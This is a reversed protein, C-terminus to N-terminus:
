CIGKITSTTDLPDSTKRSTKDSHEEQNLLPDFVVHNDKHNIAHHKRGTSVIVFAYMHM